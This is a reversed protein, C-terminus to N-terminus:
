KLKLVSIFILKILTKRKLKWEIYHLNYQISHMYVYLCQMTYMKYVCEFPKNVITKYPISYISM